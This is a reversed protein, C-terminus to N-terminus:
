NIPHIEAAMSPIKRYKWTLVFLCDTHVTLKTQLTTTHGATASMVFHKSINRQTVHCLCQYMHSSHQQHSYLINLLQTDVTSKM